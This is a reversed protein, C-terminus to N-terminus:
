TRWRGNTSSLVDIEVTFQGKHCGPPKKVIRASVCPDPSAVGSYGTCNPVSVGDHYMPITKLDTYPPIESSDLLFALHLPANASFPPATVTVVSIQGFCTASPGCADTPSTANVESVATAAGAPTSPVAVTTSQPNSESTTSGTSVTGGAPLVYESIANPSAAQVSISTSATFTLTKDHDHSSYSSPDHGADIQSTWTISSKVTGPTSPAKMIVMASVSAGGAVDGFTCAAQAASSTCTGASIVSVVSMGAPAPATLKVSELERHGTNKLTALYAVTDGATVPSPAGTLTVAAPSSDASASSAGVLAVLVVLLLPLRRM